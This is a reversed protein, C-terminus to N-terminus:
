GALRPDFLFPEPRGVRVKSWEPHEPNLLLNYQGPIVVSPVRLAVSVREDFWADGVDTSIPTEEAANWGDSLAAPDLDRIVEDPVGAEIMVYADRLLQARKVHVLM